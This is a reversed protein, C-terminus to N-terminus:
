NTTPEIGARGVLEGSGAVEVSMWGRRFFVFFLSFFLLKITWLRGDLNRSMLGSTPAYIPPMM